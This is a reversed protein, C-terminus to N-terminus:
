SELRKRYEAVEELTATTCLEFYSIILDDRISILKQYMSQPAEDVAITNPSTKSMKKGDSGVLLDFMMIDQKEQGFAEQLRRGALLNFYQETGGLEVDTHLAVSDYGQMLPYLFEQLSIRVGAKYRKSFNDRDLMEAVSFHKALDGVGAFNVKDLWDSNYVVHVKELDLVRAFKKLFEQGNARTQERMLMPRESEKDSADGIM